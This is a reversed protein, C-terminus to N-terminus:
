KDHQGNSELAFVWGGLYNPLQRSLVKELYGIVLSAASADDLTLVRSASAAAMVLKALFIASHRLALPMLMWKASVVLNPTLSIHERNRM